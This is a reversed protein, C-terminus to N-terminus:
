HKTEREIPSNAGGPYISFRANYCPASGTLCVSLGQMGFPYVLAEWRRSVVNGTVVYSIEKLVSLTIYKLHRGFLTTVPLSVHASVCILIYTPRLM